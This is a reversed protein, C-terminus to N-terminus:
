VRLHCAFVSMGLSLIPMHFASLSNASSGPGPTVQEGGVRCIGVGPTTTDEQVCEANAVCEVAKSGQPVPSMKTGVCGSGVDGVCVGKEGDWVLQYSPSTNNREKSCVCTNTTQDCVLGKAADCYVTESCSTGHDFIKPVSQCAGIGLPARPMQICSLTELCEIRKMGQPLSTRRTGICVSGAVGVCLQRGGDWELNYSAEGNFPGNSCACRGAECILGAAVDCYNHPGCTANFQQGCSLPIASALILILFKINEM